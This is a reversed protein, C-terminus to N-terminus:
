ERLVHSGSAAERSDKILLPLPVVVGGAEDAYDRAEDGEDDTFVRVAAPRGPVSVLMTFDALQVKDTRSHPNQHTRRANPADTM